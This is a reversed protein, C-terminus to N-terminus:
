PVDGEARPLVVGLACREEESWADVRGGQAEILRRSLYLGLRSGGNGGNGGNAGMGEPLDFPTGSRAVDDGVFEVGFRVGDGGTEGSMSTDPVARMVVNTEERSTRDAHRLVTKLVQLLRGRDTRVSAHAVEPAAHVRLRGGLEDVSGAADRLVEIVPESRLLPTYSGGELLGLTTLDEAVERLRVTEGEISRALALRDGDASTSWGEVLAVALARLTAVPQWLGHLGLAVPLARPARSPDVSTSVESPM